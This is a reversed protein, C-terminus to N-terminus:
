TMHQEGEPPLNKTASSGWFWWSMMTLLQLLHGNYIIM